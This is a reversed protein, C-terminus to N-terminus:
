SLLSWILGSLTIQLLAYAKSFFFVVFCCFWVVFCGVATDRLIRNVRGM